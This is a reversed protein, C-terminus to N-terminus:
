SVTTGAAPRPSVSEIRGTLALAVAAVALLAGGYVKATSRLGAEGAALGAALAPISFALYAATLISSVLEARRDEDAMATLARFIGGFSPGFGVGCIATGALFLAGSSALVAALVLAVGVILACLGFRATTRPELHRAAYSTVASIGAMFFIPLSAELHSTAGLLQASISPGLSLVLGGLSWTALMCPLAAAFASRVHRPVGARPRLSARWGPRGAVTEPLAWAMAAAAAFVGLLIWFVLATAGASDDVLVASFVAGGALGIMPAVVGTLAGMWDRDAPQLDLLAASICGMAVGTALGQLTRAAFLWAVGDAAAFAVMAAVEVALAALLVPRRGLHDSLSGAVLLAGLLAIAYVAFVATLTLDSFDWRGQFVVYLPSPASSAFLLAGLTAALLWFATRRELIPM